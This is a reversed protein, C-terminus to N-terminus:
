CKNIYEKNMYNNSKNTKDVPLYRAHTDRRDWEHLGMQPLKQRKKM